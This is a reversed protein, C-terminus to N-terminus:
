PSLIRLKRINQYFKLWLTDGHLTTKPTKFLIKLYACSAHQAPLILYSLILYAKNLTPMDYFWSVYAGSLKQVSM